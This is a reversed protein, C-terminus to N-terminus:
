VCMGCSPFCYIIPRMGAQTRLFPVFLLAQGPWKWPKAWPDETLCHGAPPRPLVQEGQASTLKFIQSRVLSSSNVLFTVVLAESLFFLEDPGSSLQRWGWPLALVYCPCILGHACVLRSKWSLLPSLRQSARPQSMHAWVQPHPPLTGAEEGGWCPEKRKCSTKM